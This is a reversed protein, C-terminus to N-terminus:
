VAIRSATQLEIWARRNGKAIGASLKLRLNECVVDHEVVSVIPAHFAKHLPESLIDIRETGCRLQQAILKLQDVRCDALSWLYFVDDSNM